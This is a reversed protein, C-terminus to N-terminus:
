KVAIGQMEFRADFLLAGSGIFARAPFYDSFYTRYVSNFAAYHSVDSCYITVSVLDDMTMDAEELTAKFQELILRAEEEPTDPVQGNELGLMGSLYLTDGAMVAGSFPPGDGSSQSPNIFEKDQASVLAPACLLLILVFQKVRNLTSM